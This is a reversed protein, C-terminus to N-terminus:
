EAPPATESLMRLLWDAQAPGLDFRLAAEEVVLLRPRAPHLRREEAIWEVARRLTEGPPLVTSM